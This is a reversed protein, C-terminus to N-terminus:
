HEHETRKLRVKVKHPPECWECIQVEGEEDHPLNGGFQLTSIWNFLNHYLYGCFDGCKHIGLEFQDGKKMGIFCDGETEVITAIVKKGINECVLAM